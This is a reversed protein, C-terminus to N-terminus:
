CKIIGWPNLGKRVTEYVNSFVKIFIFSFSRGNDFDFGTDLNNGTAGKIFCMSINMRQNDRVAYGLDSWINKRVVGPQRGNPTLFVFLLNQM